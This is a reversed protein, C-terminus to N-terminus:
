KALGKEIRTLTNSVETLTENLRFFIVLIEAILRLVISGFIIIILGKIIAHQAIMGYIGTMFLVIVGIIMSIQILIPTLMRKFTFFDKM